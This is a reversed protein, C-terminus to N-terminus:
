SGILRVQSEVREIAQPAEIIGDLTARLRRLAAQRESPSAGPDSALALLTDALKLAAVHEAPMQSRRVRRALTEAADLAAAFGQVAIAYEVIRKTSRTVPRSAHAHTMAAVAERVERVTFDRMLPFNMAKRLDKEYSLWRTTAEDELERVAALDPGTQRLRLVALMALAAVLIYVVFTMDSADPVQVDPTTPSPTPVPARTTTDKFPDQRDDRAFAWVVGAAGAIGAVLGCSVSLPTFRHPERHTLTSIIAKLGYALLAILVLVVPLLARM